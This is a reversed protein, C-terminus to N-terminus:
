QLRSQAISLGRLHIELFPAMMGENGLRTNRGLLLFKLLTFTRSDSEM